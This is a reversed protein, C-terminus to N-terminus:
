QVYMLSSVLRSPFGLLVQVSCIYLYLYLLLIYSKVPFAATSVSPTRSLSAILISLPCHSHTLMLLAYTQFTPITLQTTPQNDTFCLFVFVAFFPIIFSPSSSPSFFLIGSFTLVQELLFAGALDLFYFFSKKNKEKRKM